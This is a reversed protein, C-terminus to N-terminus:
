DHRVEAVRTTATKPATTDVATANTPLYASIGLTVTVASSASDSAAIQMSRLAIRSTGSDLTAAVSRVENYPGSIQVSIPLETVGDLVQM